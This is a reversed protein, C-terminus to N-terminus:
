DNPWNGSLHTTNGTQKHEATNGTMRPINGTQKYEVTNGAMRPINGTQKHEATNGTMRPINGTQKHEVTNQTMHPINRNVHGMNLTTHPQTSQGLGLNIVGLGAWPCDGTNSTEIDDMAGLPAHAHVTFRHVKIPSHSTPRNHSNHPLSFYKSLLLDEVPIFGEIDRILPGMKM